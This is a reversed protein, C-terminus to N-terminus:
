ATFTEPARERLEEYTIMRGLEPDWVALALCARISSPRWSVRGPSQLEPIAKYVEPLRYFPIRHNLHHIHHYGINGTLWHLFKPMEFMSSSRIAAQDFTWERREFYKVDPFNHQAFFLYSGLACSIFLPLVVACLALKWGFFVAWTAIWLLHVVVAVPAQWHAKPNRKFPSASMGVMFVTLYGMIITVPNRLTLYGKRQEPSMRKWMKVTVVPYSGISSGIVRANHRHHYDHTEQWVSTVALILYGIATMFPKALWQRRFIAGHLYDHFFIFLRVYILGIAVSVLPMAWAARSNLWFLAAHLGVVISLTVSLHAWSLAVNERAFPMTARVLRPGSRTTEAAAARKPCEEVVVSSPSEIAISVSEVKRFGLEEKAPHM